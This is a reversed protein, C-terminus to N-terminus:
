RWASRCSCDIPRVKSCRDDPLLIDYYLVICYLVICISVAGQDKLTLVIDRGSEMEDVDHAVALGKLSASTYSQAIYYPITHYPITHYPITHYM